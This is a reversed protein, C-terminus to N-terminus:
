FLDFINLQLSKEKPKRYNVSFGKGELYKGVLVRHCTDLEKCYCFLYIDNEKKLEMSIIDLARKVDERAGLENIFEPEYLHWWADTDEIDVGIRRLKLEEEKSFKSRKWMHAKNFLELSPSLMPMHIFGEPIKGVPKRVILFKIGEKLFEM